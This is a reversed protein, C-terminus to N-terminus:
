KVQKVVGKKLLPGATEAPMSLVDEKRLAYTREDTGVFEPTDEVVRVIPNTNPERAPAPATPQPPPAESAPNEKKEEFVEQRSQKIQEVLSDFLKKEVELLNKLDPTGSRVTSLANHVIKKERLEYISTIVKKMNALEDSFLKLKSPNKEQEIRQEVSSLYAAVDGYFNTDIKTLGSATQEAQQIKRLTKYTIEEHEAM